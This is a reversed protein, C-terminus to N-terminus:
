ARVRAALKAERRAMWERTSLRDAREPDDPDIREHSGSGPSVPRIPRPIGSPEAAPAKAALRAMEIGMKVPSLAMLRSAEDLDKGLVHLLRPAEGTEIAAVLLQNYRVLDAQDGGEVLSKLAVVSTDFDPFAARGAAATENCQRTFTEAASLEAARAQVLADLEATETAPPASPTAGASRRESERLRATLQAIRRDRWDQTKATTAPPEPDPEAPADPDPEPPEPEPAPPDPEPEPEPTPPEPEAPDSMAFVQVTTMWVNPELVVGALARARKEEEAM